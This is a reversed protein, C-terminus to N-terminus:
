NILQVHISVGFKSLQNSDKYNRTSKGHFVSRLEKLKMVEDMNAIRRIIIVLLCSFLLLHRTRNIKLIWEKIRVYLNLHIPHFSNYM